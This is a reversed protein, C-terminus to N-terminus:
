GADVFPLAATLEDNAAHPLPAALATAGPKAPPSVQLREKPGYRLRRPLKWSGVVM